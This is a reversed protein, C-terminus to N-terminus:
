SSGKARSRQEVLEDTGGGAEGDERERRCVGEDTPERVGRRAFLRGVPVEPGHRAAACARRLRVGVAPRQRVRTHDDAYRRSILHRLHVSERSERFCAYFM